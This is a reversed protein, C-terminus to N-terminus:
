VAEESYLVSDFSVPVHKTGDDDSPNRLLAKYASFTVATQVDGKALNIVLGSKGATIVEAVKAAVYIIDVVKEEAEDNYGIVDVIDGASFLAADFASMPITVTRNQAHLLVAATALFLVALLSSIIKKM